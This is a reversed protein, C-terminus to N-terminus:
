QKPIKAAKVANEWRVREAKLFQQMQEPTGGVPESGFARMKEAVEPLHIIRNCEKSIVDVIEKPTKAPLALMNWSSLEYGKLVSSITPVDPLLSVPESTSVGLAILKGAKIHPLIPGLNDITFDVRGAILDIVSQSTGKYTIAAADIGAMESFLAAALHSTAGIGAIAYSLKGPNAKAKAILEQITKVGVSPHVVLVNPFKAALCAPTFATDPNYTLSNYIFQNIVFSAPANLLMTYGDPEASAVSSAGINTGAGPRNVVAVPQKLSVQMREALLRAVADTNGGATFPVVIQIPHKPYDSAQSAFASALLGAIAATFQLVRM